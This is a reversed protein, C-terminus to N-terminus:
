WEHFIKKADLYAQHAEEKTKYGGLSHQKGNVTIRAYYSQNRKHWCYGKVHKKNQQNLSITGVRLNSIDNNQTNHDKHDIPNKRPEFDIDWDQNWAYYVVRHFWYKNNDISCRCYNNSEVWIGVKNWRPNKILRKGMFEFYIWLDNSDNKNMKLKRDNIEFYIYDDM